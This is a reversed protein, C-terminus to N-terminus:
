KKIPTERFDCIGNKDADVFNRNYGKGQGMGRQGMGMKRGQGQGQGAGRMYGTRNGRPGASRNANLNDCIGDNDADVWAIGRNPTNQQKQDTAKDQASALATFVILAAATILLKTKM